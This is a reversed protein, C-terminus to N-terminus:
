LPKSTTAKSDFVQLGYDGLVKPNKTYITKLLAASNGLLGM